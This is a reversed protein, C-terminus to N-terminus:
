SKQRQRTGSEKGAENLIWRDDVSKQADCAAAAARLCRGCCSRCRRGGKTCNEASWRPDGISFCSRLRNGSRWGVWCWFGKRSRTRLRRINPFIRSFASSRASSCLPLAGRWPPCRLGKARKGERKLKALRVSGYINLVKNLKQEFGPQIQEMPLYVVIRAEEDKPVLQAVDELYELVEANLRRYPLPLPITSGSAESVTELVLPLEWVGDAGTKPGYFM